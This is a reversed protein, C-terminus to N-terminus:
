VFTMNYCIKHKTALKVMAVPTQSCLKVSQMLNASGSFGKNPALMQVYDAACALNYGIKHQFNCIKTAMAVLIQGICIHSATSNALGSFWVM